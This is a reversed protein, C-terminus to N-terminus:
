PRADKTTFISSSYLWRDSEPCPVEPLIRLAHFHVTIFKPPFWRRLWGRFFRDRLASLIGDPYSCTAERQDGAFSLTSRLEYADEEACRLLTSFVHPERFERASFSRAVVLQVRGLEFTETYRPM